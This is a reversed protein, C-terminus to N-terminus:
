QNSLPSMWFDVTPKGRPVPTPFVLRFYIINTQPSKCEPLTRANVYTPMSCRGPDTPDNCAHIEIQYSTFHLLNSIVMAEKSSAKFVMKRTKEEEPISTTPFNPIITPTTGFNPLTANAVGVSRRRRHPRLTLLFFHLNLWLLHSFIFM